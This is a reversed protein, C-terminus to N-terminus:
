ARSGPRPTRCAKGTEYEEPYEGLHWVNGDNDQAFFALETEQLEGSAYDRDWVVVARVGNVVKTLDTVTFM